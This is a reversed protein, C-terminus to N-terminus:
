PKSCHRVSSSGRPATSATGLPARVDPLEARFSALLLEGAGFLAGAFSVPRDVGASRGAAIASRALERGAQTWIEVAAEDGGRAADAVDRAFSAV